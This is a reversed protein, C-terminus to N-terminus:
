VILTKAVTGLMALGICCFLTGIARELTHSAVLGQLRPGIQGGIIVGPISYMLLNWPVANLGGENILTTIHTFSAFIVTIIVILISTAAAVPVPVKGKKIMQPMAVEGIGVSLMGTLFGGIFTPVKQAKYLVYRFVSGDNATLKRDCKKSQTTLEFAQKNLESGLHGDDDMFMDEEYMEETPVDNHGRFLIYTLVLMLIGYAFRLLTQDVYKLLLAGLVGSPVAILLFSKSMSFDILRKMYYGLFGSSFGFLETFLASAIAASASALTYESGLLPFILLFIPTFLAAGGIGSFMALTAVVMSVPFMFWYLTLDM